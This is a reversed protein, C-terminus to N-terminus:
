EDIRRYVEQTQVSHGMENAIQEKVKLPTDNRRQYSIYAHRLINASAPKGSYKKFLSSLKRGLQSKTMVFLHTASPNNKKWERLMPLLDKPIDRELTGHQKATKHEQIFIKPDKNRVIIYNGKTNMPPTKTHYALNAYDLRVPPMKCYFCMLLKDELSAKTDALAKKCAEQIDEYKLYRTKENETLTQEKEEVQKKQNLLIFKEHYVEAIKKNTEKFHNFLAVYYMKSTALSKGLGDVYAIVAKTDDIKDGYNKKLRAIAMDYNKKSTTSLDPM